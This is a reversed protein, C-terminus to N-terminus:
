YRSNLWSDAYFRDGAGEQADSTRAARLALQSIQVLESRLQTSQTLAYSLEVALITALADAFDDPYKTVDTVRKVYKILCTVNDTVVTRGEVKWNFVEDGEMSFVRLCDTPLQFARSFEFEPASPLLALTSRGIAFNWPHSRLVRDRTKAYLDKCLRAERSNDTLAVIRAGGVKMLAANCLDAESTYM